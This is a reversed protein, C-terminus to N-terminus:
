RLIATLNLVKEIMLRDFKTRREIEEILKRDAM